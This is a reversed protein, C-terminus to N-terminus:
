LKKIDSEKIVKYEPLTIWANDFNEIFNLLIRLQMILNSSLTSKTLVTVNSMQYDAFENRQKITLPPDNPIDINIISFEYDTYDEKTIQDRKIEEKTLEYFSPNLVGTVTIVFEVYNAQNIILYKM